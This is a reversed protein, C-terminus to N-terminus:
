TESKEFNKLLIFLQHFFFLKEDKTKFIRKTSLTAYMPSMYLLIVNDM